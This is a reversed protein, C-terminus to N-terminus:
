WTVRAGVGARGKSVIPALAITSRPKGVYVIRADATTLNYITGIVAGAGVGISGIMLGAWGANFDDDECGGAAACLVLGTAFGGGLGVLTGRLISHTQRRIGRVESLPITADGTMSRITVHTETLSVLTGNRRSHDYAEVHVGRGIASSAASPNPSANWGTSVPARRVMWRLGGMATAITNDGTLRRANVFATLKSTVKVDLGALFQIPMSQSTGSHQNRTLSCSNAAWPVCGVIETSSSFSDRSIGVGFGVTGFVRGAGVRALFNGMLANRRGSDEFRFDGSYGTGIPGTMVRGLSVHSSSERWTLLEAQALMFRNLAVELTASVLPSRKSSGGYEPSSGSGGVAASFTLGPPLKPSVPTPPQSQASASGAMALLSATMLAIGAFHRRTTVVAETQYHAFSAASPERLIRGHASGKVAEGEEGDGTGLDPSASGDVLRRGM